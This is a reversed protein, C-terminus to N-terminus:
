DENYYKLDYKNIRHEKEDSDTFGAAICQGKENKVTWNCTNGTFRNANAIRRITKIIRAKNTDTIDETNHTGNNANFNAYYKM